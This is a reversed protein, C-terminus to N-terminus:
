NIRQLHFRWEDAVEMTWLVNILSVVVGTIPDLKTEDTPGDVLQGLGSTTGWRRIVAGNDLRLTAGKISVGGVMVWGNPLVVIKMENEM